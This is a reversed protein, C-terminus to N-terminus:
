SELAQIRISLAPTWISGDELGLVGVARRAEEEFRTGYKRQALVWPRPKLECSYRSFPQGWLCMWWLTIHDRQDPEELLALFISVSGTVKCSFPFMRRTLGVDVRHFWSEQNGPLYVPSSGKGFGIVTKFPHGQGRHYIVKLVLVVAIHLCNM